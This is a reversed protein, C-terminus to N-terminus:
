NKVVIASEGNTRVIYNGSPLHSININTDEGSSPFTCLLSGSLSFVEVRNTLQSSTGGGGAPLVAQASARAGHTLTLLGNTPNPYVQLANPTSVATPTIPCISSQTGDIHTVRVSYNATNFYTGQPLHLVGNVPGSIAQEDCFWQYTGNGKFEQGDGYLAPNNVVELMNPYPQVIRENGYPMCLSIMYERSGYPTTVLVPMATTTGEAGSPQMIASDLYFNGNVWITDGENVTFRLTSPTCAVQVTYSTNDSDFPEVLTSGGTLTFTELYNNIAFVAHISSDGQVNAFTYSAMRKRYISNVWVSDAHYGVDATITYTISGGHPVLSEGLPSISGNAGTFATVKYKNIDFVVRINADCKVNTFTYSTVVGQEVGDVLVSDIHYGYNPTITYSVSSGYVMTSDGLPSISGGMNASATIKCIDAAFVARIGTDSQINAITFSSMSGRYIGGVLVSDIHFGEDHTLAYTVSSGHVVLSDGVPSISGGVGSSATVTYINIAFVARISSDAQVNNLTYSNLAGRCDGNVLVSDIHYGYNPTITYTIADGHTVLSSGAPSISGNAGASAMVNYKNLAFVVRISSDAQVNTITYLTPAGRDVGNVLVSDVHYGYDPIFTYAIDSGHAVLSDGVPSISGNAGASATINYTNIAFVVRISSDAQVNSFTYLSLADRYNGNVLVSDIHYGYDPTITYTIAGGHPVLNEGEPSISGNAGASATVNYKNLAFVVRISSDARVNVITYLTSDGCYIENVLVSDVHYGYNPIFTYSIDSGHAVLSDGVPSISGNASALATVNYKNIAFVVRISSDAQVNAITYSSLAGRYCGNVLVSDIHYGYDSTITYAIDSGHAVLSDGMPSISGNVGASAAVNYTNIAFVVRIGSDARVNTFTYLTSDGCYIDNVLVSDIHYGYNSTITYAISSGHVVLSDGVPAISGGTGASATVIYKNIAFVVRISSDSQINAITYMASDGRYIENILVSDVHYGYEPTFTYSISDGHAVLSDGEPSICGHVGASAAVNYKNIAFVVRISSDAQVSDFAYSAMRGLYVDNVLVSDVHYGYDPTITYAISDGHVVLSDGMPSICGNANALATVKYKNIDFVVRISSDSQVNKFTYSTMAGRYTGNVLVSDVHYGYNLSITYAISDGPMVLSDGVPSISGGTNATARVM